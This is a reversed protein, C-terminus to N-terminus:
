MTHPDSYINRPDLIADYITKYADATMKRAQAVTDERIGPSQVLQVQQLTNTDTSNLFIKFRDLASKIQDRECGPIQSLPGAQGSATENIIQYIEAIGGQKLIGM